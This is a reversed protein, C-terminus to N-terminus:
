EDICDWEDNDPNYKCVTSVPKYTPQHQEAYAHVLEAQTAGMMVAIAIAIAVFITRNMVNM